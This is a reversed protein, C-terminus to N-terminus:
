RSHGRERERDRGLAMDRALEGAKKVLAGASTPLMPAVQQVLMLAAKAAGAALQRAAAEAMLEAAQRVRAAVDM